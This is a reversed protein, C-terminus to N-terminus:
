MYGSLLEEIAEAQRPLGLLAGATPAISALTHPHKAAIAGRAPIAGGAALLWVRASEPAEAGHVQFGDSWGHDTTLLVTTEAGPQGMGDLADFLAGIFRDLQMLSLLYGRYDGAHGFEDTDGLGVFLLRPQKARLYELALAATYRDPRYDAHGPWPSVNSSSDLLAGACPNVRVRDRTPGHTRGASLVITRNDVSTARELREWSTIAAVEDLSWGLATRADDLLTPKTVAPCHNSTCSSAPRGSLLEQYGPLSIFAPGSASIPEGAGPAGIAIGGEIMRRHINPLLQAARLVPVRGPQAMGADVGRFIEQWRTGDITVLVLRRTAQPGPAIPASRPTTECGIATSLPRPAVECAAAVVFLLAWARYM